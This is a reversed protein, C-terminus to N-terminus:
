PLDKAPNQADAPIRLDTISLESEGIQWVTFDNQEPVPMLVYNNAGTSLSYAPLNFSVSGIMKYSGDDQKRYFDTNCGATGCWYTGEPRVALIQADPYDIRAATLISPHDSAAYSMDGTGEAKIQKDMAELDTLAKAVVDIKALESQATVPSFSIEQKPQARENCASLFLLVIFFPLIRM